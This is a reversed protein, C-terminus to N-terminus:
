QPRRLPFDKGTKDKAVELGPKAAAPATPVPDLQHTGATGQSVRRKERQELDELALDIHRLAMANEACAWPTDQYWALRDRAAALVDEVFAGRTEEPPDPIKGDVRPVPGNQWEIELGPGRVTGGAPKGNETRNEILLSNKMGKVESITVFQERRRSQLREQLRTAIPGWGLSNLGSICLNFLREIM